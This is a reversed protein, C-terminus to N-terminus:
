NTPLAELLTLVDSKFYRCTEMEIHCEGKDEHFLCTSGLIKVENVNLLIEEAASRFCLLKRPLDKHEFERSFRVIEM